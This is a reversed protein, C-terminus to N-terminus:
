GESGPTRPTAAFARPHGPNTPPETPRSGIPLTRHSGTVRPREGSTTARVEDRLERVEQSLHHMGDKLASVADQHDDAIREITREMAALAGQYAERMEGARQEERAMLRPLFAGFFWLLFGLALATPLGLKAVAEVVPQGDHVASALGSILLGATSIIAVATAARGQGQPGGYLRVPTRQSASM